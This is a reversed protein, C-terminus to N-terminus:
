FLIPYRIKTVWKKQTFDRFVESTNLFDIIDDNGVNAFDGYGSTAVGLNNLKRIHMNYM